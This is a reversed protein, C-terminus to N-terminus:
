RACEPVAVDAKASIAELSIGKEILDQVLSTNEALM